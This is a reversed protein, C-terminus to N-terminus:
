AIDPLESVEVPGDAGAVTLSAPVDVRRAVYALGVTQEREPSWAWSTVRGASKGDADVLEEGGVLGGDPMAARSIAVARLRQPVNGGRSDIRAVLEQGTYCGKTFSVSRDVIGAAAPITDDTLERGMAPIGAEIRLVDLESAAAQM